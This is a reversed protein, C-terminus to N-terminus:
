INIYISERSERNPSHSASPLSTLQPGISILLTSNNLLSDCIVASNECTVNEKMFLIHCIYGYIRGLRLKLIYTRPTLQPFGRLCFFYMIYVYYIVCVFRPLICLTIGSILLKLLLLFYNTYHKSDQAIEYRLKLLIGKMIKKM